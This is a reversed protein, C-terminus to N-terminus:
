RTVPPIDNRVWGGGKGEGLIVPPDEGRPFVFSMNVHLVNQRRVRRNVHGPGAFSGFVRRERQVRLPIAQDGPRGFRAPSFTAVDLVLDRVSAAGNAGLATAGLIERRGVAEGAGAGQRGSVEDHEISSAGTSRSFPM